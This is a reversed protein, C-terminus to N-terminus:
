CSTMMQSYISSCASCALLGGRQCLEHSETAGCVQLGLLIDSDDAAGTNARACAEERRDTLDALAVPSYQSAPLISPM